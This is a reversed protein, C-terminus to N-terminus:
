RFLSRKFKKSVHKLHMFNCYGGRECSGDNYQRCKAERFDTVPCFEAMIVRGAYFRGNLAKMARDAADEKVFKAYVNGILHDGINDCVNLEELEGYKSLELFVEEYFEEFHRIADGLAEDSVQMGPRTLPPSLSSTGDAFAVAASPNDYMHYMLITQSLIPKNHLRTCTDGHRCAGIKFYFPCNVRSFNLLPSICNSTKRPELFGRM